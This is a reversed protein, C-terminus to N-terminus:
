LLLFMNYKQWTLYSKFEENFVGGCLLYTPVYYLYFKTFLLLIFVNYFLIIILIYLFWCYLVTVNHIYLTRQLYVENVVIKTDNGYAYHVRMTGM